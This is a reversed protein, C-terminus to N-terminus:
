QMVLMGTLIGMGITIATLMAGITYGVMGTERDRSAHILVGITGGASVLTMALAQGIHSVTM